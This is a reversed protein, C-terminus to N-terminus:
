KVHLIATVNRSFRGIKASIRWDVQIKAPLDYEFAEKEEFSICKQVYALKPVCATTPEFVALTVLRQEEEGRLCKIWPAFFGPGRWTVRTGQM